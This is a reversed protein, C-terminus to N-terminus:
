DSLSSTARTSSVIGPLYPFMRLLVVGNTRMSMKVIAPSAPRFKLKVVKRLMSCTAAMTSKTKSSSPRTTKDGIVGRVRKPKLRMRHRVLQITPAQCHTSILHSFQTTPQVRRASLIITLALTVSLKSGPRSATSVVQLAQCPLSRRNSTDNEVRLSACNTGQRLNTKM